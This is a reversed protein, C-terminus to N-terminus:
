DEPYDVQDYLRLTENWDRKRRRRISFYKVRSEWSGRVRGKERGGLQAFYTEPDEPLGLRRALVMVREYLDRRVEAIERLTRGRVLLLRVLAAFARFASVADEMWRLTMWMVAPVVVATLPAVPFTIVMSGLWVCVGSILGYVLKYQAIEDWTDWVPGTKTFNRVGIFTTLVIPLWLLLGPISLTFLVLSWGLRIPIRRLITARSLPRRIRDDKVGWKSLTDQYSKLDQRLKVLERIEERMEGEGESGSATTNGEGNTGPVTLKFADLFTRVVRVYDGLSMRTGLPAYMRAALKSTRVLDWSPSDLTGASIQQHMRATLLRIHTYDVPALLEPHAKPTFRMPPHFTVLVDSRWHQRHMYTISCNLISIEFAPNDRNRSLVESVLRAVGTKLPAISPHYRSAGEPFLCVADGKELAEMLNGMVMSNDVEQDGFDKRRKIPVTGASEILWSTFTKKGFQTSKATLRLMNRRRQPIATVLLLADTLSNSHNACVICPEGTKPVHEANEVVITGYFIKLVFKFLLRILFYSWPTPSGQPM